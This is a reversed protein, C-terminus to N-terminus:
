LVGKTSPITNGEIKIAKKLAVGFAKFMAELIHHINKGYNLNIHLTIGASTAVARFFEEALQVEFDGCMYEPPFIANFVLFPRGSIDMACTALTEDMPVFADGYRTIGAKDGLAKGLVTGIAIGIDEVTHHGDIQLDGVCKVNLTIGARFAFLNLMHDFFGIGTNIKGETFKDLNIEVSIVTEKTKREFVQKRM